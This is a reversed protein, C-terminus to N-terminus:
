RISFGFKDSGGGFHTNFIMFVAQVGFLHGANPQQYFAFRDSMCGM